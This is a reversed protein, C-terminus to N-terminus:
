HKSPCRSWTAHIVLGVDYCAINKLAANQKIFRRVEDFHEEEITEKIAEINEEWPKNDFCSIQLYIAEFYERASISGRLYGTRINRLIDEKSNRVTMSQLYIKLLSKSRGRKGLYRALKSLYIRDLKLKTESNITTALAEESKIKQEIKIVEDYFSNHRSIHNSSHISGSEISSDAKGWDNEKITESLNEMESLVSSDEKIIKKGGADADKQCHEKQDESEFSTEDIVHEIKGQISPGKNGENEEISSFNNKVSLEHNKEDENPSPLVESSEIEIGASITNIVSMIDGLEAPKTSLTSSPRSKLTSIKFFNDNTVKFNVPMERTENEM